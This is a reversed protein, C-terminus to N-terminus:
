EQKIAISALVHKRDSSYSVCVLTIVMCKSKLIGNPFFIRVNTYFYPSIGSFM